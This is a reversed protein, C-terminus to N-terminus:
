SPFGYSTKHFIIFCCVFVSYGVMYSCRMDVIPLAISSISLKCVYRKSPLERYMSILSYRNEGIENDEKVHFVFSDRLAQLSYDKYWFDSPYVFIFDIRVETVNFVLRNMIIITVWAYNMVSHHIVWTKKQIVLVIVM